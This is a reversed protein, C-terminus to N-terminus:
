SLQSNKLMLNRAYDLTIGTDAVQIVLFFASTECADLRICLRENM